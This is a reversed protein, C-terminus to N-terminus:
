PALVEFMLPIRAMLENLFVNMHLSYEAESRVLLEPQIVETMTRPPRTPVDVDAGNLSRSPRLHVM